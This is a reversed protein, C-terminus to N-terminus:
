HNNRNPISGVVAHSNVVTAVRVVADPRTPPTDSLDGSAGSLYLPTGEAWASTDIGRVLGMLTVFGEQNNAIEQTAIGFTTHATDSADGLEVSLRNGQAGKITVVRGNAIDSGEKNVVRALHEQGIQLTVMDNLPVEPCHDAESWVIRGVAGTGTPTIDLQIANVSPNKPDLLTITGAPNIQVISESAPNALTAFLVGLPTLGPINTNLKLWNQSVEDGGAATTTICILTDGAEFAETGIFGANTIWYIWGAEAAPYEHVVSADIGGRRMSSIMDRIKQILDVQSEINGTINGWAVYPIRFELGSEDAKVYVGLDAAGTYAKPTDGLDKFNIASGTIRLFGNSDVAGMFLEVIKLLAIAARDNNKPTPGEPFASM